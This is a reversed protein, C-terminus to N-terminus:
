FALVSQVRLKHQAALCIPRQLVNGDVRGDGQVFFFDFIRGSNSSIFYLLITTEQYVRLYYDM